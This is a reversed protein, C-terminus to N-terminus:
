STSCCTCRDAAGNIPLRAVSWQRRVARHGAPALRVAPVSVGIQSLGVSKGSGVRSVGSAVEPTTGIAIWVIAMFGLMVLEIKYYALATLAVGLAAALVFYATGRGSIENFTFQGLNYGLVLIVAGIVLSVLIDQLRM